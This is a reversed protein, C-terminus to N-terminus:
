SLSLERLHNISDGKKLIDYAKSLLSDLDDNDSKLKSVKSAISFFIFQKDYPGDIYLQFQSHQDISGKGTLLFSGKSDKGLSENWLQKYWSVFSAM